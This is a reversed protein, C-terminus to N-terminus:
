HPNDHDHENIHGESIDLCLEDGSYLNFKKKDLFFGNGPEWTGPPFTYGAPFHDLESLLRADAVYCCYHGPKLHDKCIETGPKLTFLKAELDLKTKPENNVTVLLVVLHGCRESEYHHHGNDDVCNKFCVKAKKNNKGDGEKGGSDDGGKNDALATGAALFVAMTLALSYYM